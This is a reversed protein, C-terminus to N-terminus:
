NKEAAKRGDSSWYTSHSNPRCGGEILSFLAQLQQHLAIIKEDIEPTWQAKNNKSFFRPNNKLENKLNKLINLFTKAIHNEIGPQLKINEENLKKRIQKAFQKVFLTKKYTFFIM